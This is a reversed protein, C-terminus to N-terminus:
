LILHAIAREERVKSNAFWQCLLISSHMLGSAVVKYLLLSTIDRVSLVIDV